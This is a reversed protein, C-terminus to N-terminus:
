DMPLDPPCNYYYFWNGEIRRLIDMSHENHQDYYSDDELEYIYKIGQSADNLRVSFIIQSIIVAEIEPRGIGTIGSEIIFNLIYDKEKVDDTATEFDEGGRIKNYPHGEGEYHFLFYPYNNTIIDKIKEFDAKYDIFIKTIEDEKSTFDWKKM